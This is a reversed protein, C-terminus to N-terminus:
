LRLVPSYLSAISGADLARVFTGKNGTESCKEPIAKEGERKRAKKRGAIFTDEVFFDTATGEDSRDREQPRECHLKRDFAVKKSHLFFGIPTTIAIVIRQVARESARVCM